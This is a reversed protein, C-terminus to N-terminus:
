QEGGKKLEAILADAYLVAVKVSEEMTLNHLLGDSRYRQYYKANPLIEKAIEYRRQEWDIGKHPGTTTNEADQMKAAKQKPYKEFFEDFEKYLVVMDWFEFGDETEEWEFGGHKKDRNACEQFISVDAKNGQRVQEEIM